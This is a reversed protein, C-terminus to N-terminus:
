FLLSLLDVLLDHGRRELGVEARLRIQRVHVALPDVHADQEGHETQIGGPRVVNARVEAHGHALDVVVPQVLVALRVRGPQLPHRQQGQLVGTLSALLQAPGHLLQAKHGPQHDGIRDDSPPEVIARVVHEVPLGLDQPHGEHHALPLPM